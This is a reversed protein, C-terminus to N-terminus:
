ICSLDNDLPFICFDREPLTLIGCTHSERPHQSKCVCGPNLLLIDDVERFMPSHSHGVIIIDADVGEMIHRLFADPMNAVLYQSNSNPSGHVLLIKQGEWVFRLAFPLTQLYVITRDTLLRTELSTDGQELGMLTKHVIEADMNQRFWRQNSIAAEDHNGRVCPIKKKQLLRVVADGDFGKEVVDGACIIQEVGEREFIVLAKQLSDLQAHIDAVIGIKM